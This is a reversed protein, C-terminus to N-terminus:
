TYHVATYLTLHLQLKQYLTCYKCSQLAPNHNTAVAFPIVFGGAKIKVNRSLSQEM